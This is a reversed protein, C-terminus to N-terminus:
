HEVRRQRWHWVVLTLCTLLVACVWYVWFETSVSWGTSGQDPTYNSFSMSFIAQKSDALHRLVRKCSCVLCVSLHLLRYRQQLGHDFRMGLLHAASSPSQAGQLHLLQRLWREELHGDKAALM